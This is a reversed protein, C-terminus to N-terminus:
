GEAGLPSDAGAPRVPTGLLLRLILSQFAPDSYLSHHDAGGFFVRAAEPVGCGTESTHAQPLHTALVSSRTVRGDGAEYMLEQETGTRSWFM